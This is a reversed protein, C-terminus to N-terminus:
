RLRVIDSAAFIPGVELRLGEGAYLAPPVSIDALYLEGVRAAAADSLLGAKPLALPSPPKHVFREPHAAYAALLVRHRAALIKPAHGYHVTAPTLLGLGSHYHEHHYWHFFRGCFGRADEQSGFREPFEPRYKLTKFQSESFPNDNSVHPRSHSKTVGLTALLQAVTHSKMSPGRDSHIVLKGPEVQQKEISDRILRKALDANERSALMWGVAYRSYIDLIVYLYYYTWKAPGLLKTIDWSWVQNPATALLEPKKYKPHRLQNRRERVERCDHLIRYMTRISCHYTGQDLLAAYVAAPAKDVFRDSHLVDLVSQRQESNLARPQRRKSRAEVSTSQRSRRRYVTARSVGMARCAAATGVDTALEEAADM